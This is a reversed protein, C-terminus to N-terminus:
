LWNALWCVTVPSPLIFLKKPVSSTDSGSSVGSSTSSSSSGSNNRKHRAMVPSNENSKCQKDAPPPSLSQSSIQTLLNLKSIDPESLMRRIKTEKKKKTYKLEVREVKCSLHYSESETFTKINDFWRRFKEDQVIIYNKAAEQLLKIQAIIEFEKRRKEFNILGDETFDQYAADLMMLDTLFTGM